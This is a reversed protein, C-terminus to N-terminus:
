SHGNQTSTNEHLALCLVAPLTMEKLTRCRRVERFSARQFHTNKPALPM